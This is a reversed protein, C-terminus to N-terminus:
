GREEEDEKKYKKMIEKRNASLGAVRKKLTAAIGDGILGMMLAEFDTFEHGVIEIYFRFMVYTTLITILYRRWNDKFWFRWKWKFPTNKSQPDRGSTETLGYILYGILFFWGFSLMQILNYNGFIHKLFEIMNNINLVFM